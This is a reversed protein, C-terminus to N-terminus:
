NSDEVILIYFLLHLHTNKMLKIQLTSRFNLVEYILNLTHNGMNNEYKWADKDMIVSYISKFNYHITWYIEDVIIWVNFQKYDSTKNRM